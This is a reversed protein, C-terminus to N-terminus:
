LKVEKVDMSPLTVLFAKKTEAVSANVYLTKKYSVCGASEHIHGFVHMAPKKVEDFERFELMGANNGFLALDLIGYPPEHTVLILKKSDIGKTIRYMEDPIFFRSDVGLFCYGNHVEMMNKLLTVNDNDTNLNSDWNGSVFFTKTKIGDLAKKADAKDMFDGCNILVDVKHKVIALEVSKWLKKEGHVDSVCLVKM